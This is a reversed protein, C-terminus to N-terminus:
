KYGEKYKDDYKEEWGGLFCVSVILDVVGNCGVTCDFRIGGDVVGGGEFVGSVLTVFM